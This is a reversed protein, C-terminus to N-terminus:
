IRSEGQQKIEEQQGIEEQQKNEEQQRIFIKRSGEPRYFKKLFEWAARSQEPIAGHPMNKMVTYGVREVGDLGYYIETHFHDGSKYGREPTYYNEGTRIEDAQESACHNM